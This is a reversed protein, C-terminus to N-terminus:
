LYLFTVSYSASRFLREFRPPTCLTPPLFVFFRQFLERASYIFWHSHKCTAQLCYLVKMIITMHLLYISGHLVHINAYFLFLENVYYEYGLYYICIFSLHQCIFVQKLLQGFHKLFCSDASDLINLKSVFQSQLWRLFPWCFWPWSIVYVFM